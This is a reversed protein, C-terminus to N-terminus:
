LDPLARHVGFAFAATYRKSVDSGTERKGRLDSWSGPRGAVFFAVSTAKQHM